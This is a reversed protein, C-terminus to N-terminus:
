NNVAHNSEQKDIAIIWLGTAPISVWLVLESFIATDPLLVDVLFCSLMTICLYSVLYKM